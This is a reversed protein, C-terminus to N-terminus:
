PETSMKNKSFLYNSEFFLHRSRRRELSRASVASHAPPLLVKKPLIVVFITLFFNWIRKNTEKSEKNFQIENM